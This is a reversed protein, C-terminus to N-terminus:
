TQRLLRAPDTRAARRAPVLVAVLACALLMSLAAGISVPDYPSIGSLTEAASLRSVVLALGLGVALGIIVPRL